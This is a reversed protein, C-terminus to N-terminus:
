LPAEAIEAQLAACFYRLQESNTYKVKVACELAVPLSHRQGLKYDLYRAGAPITVKYCHACAKTTRATRVRSDDYTGM